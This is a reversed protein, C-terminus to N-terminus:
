IKLQVLKDSGTVDAVAEITGVRVDLQGLVKLDILPKVPAPVV